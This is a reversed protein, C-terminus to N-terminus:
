WSTKKINASKFVTEFIDEVEGSSLYLLVLIETLTLCFFALGNLQQYCHCSVALYSLVSHKNNIHRASIGEYSSGVSFGCYKRNGGIMKMQVFDNWNEKQEPPKKAKSLFDIWFLLLTLPCGSSRSKTELHSPTRGYYCSTPCICGKFMHLM